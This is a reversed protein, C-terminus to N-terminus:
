LQENMHRILDAKSDKKTIIIETENQVLGCSYSICVATELKDGTLMWVQIGAM